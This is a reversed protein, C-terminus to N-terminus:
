RPLMGDLLTLDWVKVTHDRSGSVLLRSDPSFALSSVWGTHGRLKHRLEGSTADWLRITTDEGASALWRGDPSFAVAFVDGTHGPLTQLERTRGAILASAALLPGPALPSGMWGVTSAGVAPLVSEPGTKTADWIKITHEEGGTALRRGNSSFAVRNGWGLARVPLTLEPEQKQTASGAVLASAALLPGPGLPTSLLGVSSTGRVRFAQELRAPDWAWVKVTWDNSATALRRGDPSFAMGWIIEDHRGLNDVGQGTRADTVRVTHGPEHTLLYRGEPDFTIFANNMIPIRLLDRGTEVDWVIASADREPTRAAAALRRGDPSFAVCTIIGPHPLTHRHKGTRADWLRVTKDWSASAVTRGDPSFAVSWIVDDHECTPPELGV